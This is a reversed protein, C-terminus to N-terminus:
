INAHFIGIALNKTLLGRYDNSIKITEGSKLRVFKFPSFQICYLSIVEFTNLNGVDTNLNSIRGIIITDKLSAPNNYLSKIENETLARDYIRVEDIFSNHFGHGSIGEWPCGGIWLDLSEADSMDFDVLDDLDQLEANLYLKFSDPYDAIITLFLWENKPIKDGEDFSLVQSEDPTYIQGFIRGQAAESRAKALDIRPVDDTADGLSVFHRYHNENDAIKVWVSFTFDQNVFEFDSTDIIEVYDDEGDFILAKGSLGDTVGAENLIGHNGNGSEDEANEFDFSWYGVLGDNINFNLNERKIMINNTNIGVASVLSTGIFLFLVGIVFKKNILYKQNM